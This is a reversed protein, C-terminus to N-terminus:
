ELSGLNQKMHSSHSFDCIHRSAGKQTHPIQIVAKNREWNAATQSGFSDQSWTKSLCIKNAKM